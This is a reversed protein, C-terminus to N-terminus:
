TEDRLNGACRSGGGGVVATMMTLMGQTSTYRRSDRPPVTAATEIQIFLTFNEDLGPFQCLPCTMRSRTVTRRAHVGGNRPYLAFFTSFPDRRPM